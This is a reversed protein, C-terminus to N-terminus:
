SHQPRRQLGIQLWQPNKSPRLLRLLHGARKQSIAKRRRLAPEYPRLRPRKKQFQFERVLLPRFITPCGGLLDDQGLRNRRRGGPRSAAEPSLLLSGNSGAGIPRRPGN